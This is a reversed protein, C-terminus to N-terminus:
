YLINVDIEGTLDFPPAPAVAAVPVPPVVVLVADAAITSASYFMRAAEFAM